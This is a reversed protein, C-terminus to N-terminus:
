EPPADAHPLPLPQGNRAVYLTTRRVAGRTEYAIIAENRLLPASSLLGGVDPQAQSSDSEVRVRCLASDCRIEAVRGTQGLAEAVVTQVQQEAVTDPPVRRTGLALHEDLKETQARRADEQAQQVARIGGASSAGASPSTPPSAPSSGRAAVALETQALQRRVAQLEKRVEVIDETSSAEQVEVRPPEKRDQRFSLIAITTAILSALTAALVPALFPSRREIERAAQREM